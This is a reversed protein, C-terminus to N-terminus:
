DLRITRMITLGSSPRNRRPQMSMILVNLFDPKSGLVKEMSSTDLVAKKATDKSEAMCLAGMQYRIEQEQDQSCDIFFSGKSIKEALMFACEAWLNLYRSEKPTDGKVFETGLKNMTQSVSYDVFTSRETIIYRSDKVEFEKATELTMQKAEEEDSPFPVDLLVKCYCGEWGLVILRDHEKAATGAVIYRIANKTPEKKEFLTETSGPSCLASANVFNESKLIMETLVDPADDHANHGVKRFSKIQSAFRPWRSEWDSPFFIMNQVENRHNFIKREKNLTQYYEVLKTTMNGLSRTQKEVNRKFIGGGNNTEIYALETKQDALMRALQPETTETGEKTFLVDTVYLGFPYELYCVSCLDDTGKDAPDTINKRKPPKPSIPLEKYTKFTGEYMLGEMPKPNQLYQTDFVFTNASRRKYLEELSDKFPWLPRENGEEDQQIAPLSLVTWEGPERELLYGSLDHEHLRQMIVIIPTKRSNQRSRITTEFRTNIRERMLDSLADEPKIPDDIVIAGSFRDPNFIAFADSPIEEERDSDISGAGFGTVQGLTATSYMGGGQETEWKAKTDSGYKIRAEFCQRFYESNIIDKVAVSNGQTLTGSYSLHLFKSAPNLAFGYAIFLQSCLLSKGYRPPCNIILKRVRGKIVDDLASFIRKHHEGVIYDNKNIYKFLMTSFNEVSSLLYLKHLQRMRADEQQKQNKKQDM